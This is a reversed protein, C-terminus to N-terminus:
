IGGHLTALADVTNANGAPTVINDGGGDAGAHDSRASAVGDNVVGAVATNGGGVAGGAGGDDGVIATVGAAAVAVGALTKEDPGARGGSQTEMTVMNNAPSVATVNNVGAVQLAQAILPAVM